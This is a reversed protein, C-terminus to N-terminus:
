DVKNEKANKSQRMKEELAKKQIRAFEQYVAPTGVRPRTLEAFYEGHKINRRAFIFVRPISGPTYM